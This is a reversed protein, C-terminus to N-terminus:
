NGATWRESSNYVPRRLGVMRHVAPGRGVSDAAEGRDPGPCPQHRSGVAIAAAVFASWMSWRHQHVALSSWALWLGFALYYSRAGRLLDRLGALALGLAIMLLFWTTWPM